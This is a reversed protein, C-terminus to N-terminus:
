LDVFRKSNRLSLSFIPISHPIDPFGFSSKIPPNLNCLSSLFPFSRSDWKGDDKASLKGQNEREGNEQQKGNPLSGLFVAPSGGLLAPEPAASSCPAPTDMSEWSQHSATSEIRANWCPEWRAAPSALEMQSGNGYFLGNRSWFM